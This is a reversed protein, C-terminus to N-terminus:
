VYIKKMSENFVPVNSGVFSWSGDTTEDSLQDLLVAGGNDVCNCFITNLVALIM